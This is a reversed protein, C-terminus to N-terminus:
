VNYVNSDQTFSLSSNNYICGGVQRRKRWKDVVKMVVVNSWNV